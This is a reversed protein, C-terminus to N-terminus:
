QANLASALERRGRIELKRYSSSLHVEVTKPTVYLKQAIERNSLGSAALDAVRRESPTLAKVGSLTTSRPRAGSAHLEGRVREVLPAAGCVEALELARRLPDRAATPKRALRLSTGQAALARALELRATSNELTSVAEELDDLGDEGKLMGLVRLTRGVTRPAGWERSLELEEEAMRIAEPRRDLGSLALAKFTRWHATTPNRNLPLRAPFQDAVSLAEELRGEELLLELSTTLWYRAADGRDPDKTSDFLVRAEGAAGRALLVQGLISGLYPDAEDDESRGIRYGYLRFSEFGGRLSSEAAPLDGRLYLDYGHWLHITSIMFLSGSRRAVEFMREWAASTEERDAIWLTSIAYISLLGGDAEILDGGDLAALALEVCRERPGNRDTWDHAVVAALMKEGTSEVTEMQRYSALRNREEELGPEFAAAASELALLGLKEDKFGDPLSEITRRAIAAGEAPEGSFLLARGLLNALLAITHPDQAAAYGRKLTPVAETLDTLAQVLALEIVYGTRQAVPPPEALARALCAAANDPAGREAAERGAERLAEAV